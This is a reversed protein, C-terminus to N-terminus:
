RALLELKEVSATDIIHLSNYILNSSMLAAIAFIKADYDTSTDYAEFGETDLFLAASRGGRQPVLHM